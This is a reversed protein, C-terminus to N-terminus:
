AREMKEKEASLTSPIAYNGTAHAVLEGAEEGEGESHILVEGYALKRGLKLIRAEAVLPRIPPKRLFTITMNSTVALPEPGIMSLVAGYLAVDALAFMTPGSLTGGARVMDPQPTAVMTCLGREMARVSLGGQRVQPMHEDLLAIFDDRRIAAKAQNEMGM